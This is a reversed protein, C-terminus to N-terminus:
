QNGGPNPARQPYITLRASGGSGEDGIALDGTETFTIAEPQPHPGPRLRAWALISGDQGIEVIREERSAIVLMHGTGEHFELGSLSLRRPLGLDSLTEPALDLLPEPREAAAPGIRVSFLTLGGRMGRGRIRKCALILRAPDAVFALGEVECWEGVGTELTEFSVRADPAGEPFVRVVGNSDTLYVFGGGVAVGEFDGRMGEEDLRFEDVVEGTGADLRHLRAREDDHALLLGDPVRALGSIEQLRGPLGHRVRDTGEDIQFRALLTGPPTWAPTEDSRGVLLAALGGVLLSVGVAAASLLGSRHTSTTPRM